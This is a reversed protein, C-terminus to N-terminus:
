VFHGVIGLHRGPFNMLPQSMTRSICALALEGREHFGGGGTLRIRAPRRNM